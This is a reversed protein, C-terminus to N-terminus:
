YILLTVNNIINKEKKYGLPSQRWNTSFSIKPLTTRGSFCVEDKDGEKCKRM